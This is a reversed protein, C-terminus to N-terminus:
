FLNPTQNFFLPDSKEEPMGRHANASGLSNPKAGLEILIERLAQERHSNGAAFRPHTTRFCLADGIRFRWLRKSEIVHSDKIQDGFCAKLYKDYSAGTVFLISRPKLIEIQKLLLKASLASILTIADSRIPSKQKYSIAFLNHWAVSGQIGQLKKAASRQFHGFQSRKAPGSLLARHKNMSESAYDSLPMDYIKEFAGIWGRTEQGVIMLKVEDSPASPLFIGALGKQATRFRDIDFDNLIGVYAQLLDQDSAREM